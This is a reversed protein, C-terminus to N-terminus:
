AKRRTDFEDTYKLGTRDVAEAAAVMSKIEEVTMGPYTTCLNKGPLLRETTWQVCVLRSESM